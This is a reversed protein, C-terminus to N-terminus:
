EDQGLGQTTVLEAPTWFKLSVGDALLECMTVGTPGVHKTDTCNLM